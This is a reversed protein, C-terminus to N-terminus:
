LPVEVRVETGGSPAPGIHFSGGMQEARRSMNNLGMGGRSSSTSQFPTRVFPPQGTTIKDPPTRDGRGSDGQPPVDRESGQLGVGDDRVTLTVRRPEYRIECRLTKGGSHRVANTIAEQGIRLLHSETMAALPRHSGVSRVCFEMGAAEALPRGSRRLADELGGEDLLSSRMDRVTRRTEELAHHVMAAAASLHSRAANDDVGLTETACDVQMGIGTVTQALTDHLERAVREREATVAAFQREADRRVRRQSATRVRGIVYLGATTMALAALAVAAATTRRRPTWFPPPRVVVIDTPQRLLLRGGAPMAPPSIWHLPADIRYIGTLGVRSGVAPFTESRDLDAVVTLRSAGNTIRARIPRRDTEVTDVTGVVRVLRGDYSPNVWDDSEVEVPRPCDTPTPPEIEYVSDTMVPTVNGRSIFGTATIIRGVPPPPRDFLGADRQIRVVLPWGGDDIYIARNDDKDFAATVCGRVRVPANVDADPRFTLLTEVRRIALDRLVREPAALIRISDGGPVALWLSLFQRDRHRTHVVGEVEIRSGVPPVDADDIGGDIVASLYRGDLSLVIVPRGARNRRVVRVEGRLRVWAADWSPKQLDSGTLTRPPPVGPAATVGITRAHVVPAFNGPGSVGRITVRDGRRPQRRGETENVVYIGIGDDDIFFVPRGDAPVLTVIADLHVPREAAAEEVSLRRVADASTLLASPDAAISSAATLGILITAVAVAAPVGGAGAM